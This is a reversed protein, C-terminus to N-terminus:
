HGRLSTANRYRAIQAPDQTVQDLQGNNNIPYSDYIAPRGQHQFELVYHNSGNVGDTDVFAVNMGNHELTNHVAPSNSMFDGMVARHIGNNSGSPDISNDQRTRMEWYLSEQLNNLDNQTINGGNRLRQPLDGLNATVNQGLDNQTNYNQMSSILDTLGQRGNAYYMGAVISAPGCRNEDANTQSNNDMQSAHRLSSFRAEPTNMGLVERGPTRLTESYNSRINTGMAEGGYQEGLVQNARSQVFSGVRPAATAQRSQPAEVQTVTKSQIANM